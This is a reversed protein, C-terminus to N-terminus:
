LGHTIFVFDADKPEDTMKFPDIYIIKGDADIRISNQTFVEIRDTM